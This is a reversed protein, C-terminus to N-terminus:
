KCNIKKPSKNHSDNNSDSETEDEDEDDDEEDDEDFQVGKPTKRRKTMPNIISMHSNRPAIIHAVQNKSINFRRAQPIHNTSPKSGSSTIENAVGNSATDIRSSLKNLETETRTLKSFMHFMFDRLEIVSSKVPKLMLKISTNTNTAKKNGATSSNKTELEIIETLNETDIIKNLEFEERKLCQGIMALFEVLSVKFNLQKHLVNSVFLENTINLSWVSM